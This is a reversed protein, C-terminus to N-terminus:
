RRHLFEDIDDLHLRWESVPAGDDSVTHRDDIQRWPDAPDFPELWTAPILLREQVFVDESVRWMTWCYQFASTFFLTRDSGSVLRQAADTWHREYEERSWTGLAALFEERHPGLTTRGRLALWGDEQPEPETTIFSIDFV